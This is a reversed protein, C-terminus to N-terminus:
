ENNKYVKYFHDVTNSKGLLALFEEDHTIVILQFNKKDRRSEVIRISIQKNVQGLEM